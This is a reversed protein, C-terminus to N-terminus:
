RLVVRKSDFIEIFIANILASNVLCYPYEYSYSLLQNFNLQYWNSLKTLRGMM